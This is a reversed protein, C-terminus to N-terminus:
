EDEPTVEDAAAASISALLGGSTNRPEPATNAPITKADVDIVPSLALRAKIWDPAHETADHTVAIDVRQNDGYEAPNLKSAAWQFSGIAVRAANPEKKGNLVDEAVEIVRDAWFDGATARARRYQGSFAPNTAIERQITSRAPMGRM